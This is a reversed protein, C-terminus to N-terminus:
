KLTIRRQGLQIFNAFVILSFFVPINFKIRYSNARVSIMGKGAEQEDDAEELEEEEYHIKSLSRLTWIFFHDMRSFPHSIRNHKGGNKAHCITNSPVCLCVSMCPTGFVMGVKMQIAYRIKLVTLFAIDGAQTKKGHAALQECSHKYFNLKLCWELSFCTHFFRGEEKVLKRNLKWELPLTLLFIIKRSIPMNM